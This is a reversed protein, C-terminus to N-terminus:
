PQGTDNRGPGSATTSARTPTQWKSEGLIIKRILFDCGAIRVRNIDRKVPLWLKGEFSRPEPSVFVQDTRSGLGQRLPWVVKVAQNLDFHPPSSNALLQVQMTARHMPLWGILTGSEPNWERVLMLVSSAGSTEKGVHENRPPASKAVVAFIAVILVLVLFLLAGGSLKEKCTEDSQHNM